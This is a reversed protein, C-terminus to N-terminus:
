FRHKKDMHVYCEAETEFFKLCRWCMYVGCGICRVNDCGIWKEVGSHCSPCVKRSQPKEAIWEKVKDNIGEMVKVVECSLGKHFKLHCHTCISCSCLPCVFENADETVDYLMQCNPTPCPRARSRNRRLFSDVSAGYVEPYEVAQDSETFEKIDNLSVLDGCKEKACTIPVERGRIATTIQMKLCEHCYSHGCASLTHCKDEIPCLCAACEAGENTALSGEEGGDTTAEASDSRLDQNELLSHVCKAVEEQLRDQDEPAGKYHIAHKTQDLCLEGPYRDTLGQLNEGYVNIMYQLLGRPYTEDTLMFWCESNLKNNVELERLQKEAKKIAEVGGYITISKCDYAIDIKTKTETMINKIIESQKQFVQLTGMRMDKVSKGNLLTEVEKNTERLVDPYSCYVEVGVKGNPMSRYEIKVEASKLSSVLDDTDCRIVSAIDTETLHVVFPKDDFNLERRGIYFTIYGSQYLFGAITPSTTIVQGKQVMDQPSPMDLIVDVPGIDPELRRRYDEIDGRFVDVIKDRTKRLEAATSVFPPQHWYDVSLPTIHLRRNFTQAIQGLTKLTGNFTFIIMLQEPLFESSMYWPENYWRNYRARIFDTKTALKVCIKRKDITRRKMTFRLYYLPKKSDSAPVLHYISEKSNNEAVAKFADVLHEFKMTGWLPNKPFGSSKRIESVRGINREFHRRVAGESLKNHLDIRTERPTTIFIMIIDRSLTTDLETIRAGPGLLLKLGSQLNPYPIREVDAELKAKVSAIKELLFKEVEPRYNPPCCIKLCMYKRDPIIGILERAIRCVRALQKRLQLVDSTTKTLSDIVSLGAGGIEFTVPLNSEFESMVHEFNHCSKIYNYVAQKSCALPMQVLYERAPGSAGPLDLVFEPLSHGLFLCSEPYLRHPKGSAVNMYAGRDSYKMHVCVDNFFMPLIKCCLMDYSLEFSRVSTRCLSTLSLVNNKSKLDILKQEILSMIEPNICNRQCWLPRERKPTTSWTRFCGLVAFLDGGPCGLKRRCEDVRAQSKDGPPHRWISPAGLAVYTVATIVDTSVDQSEGSEGDNSTEALSALCQLWKPNMAANVTSCHPRSLPM